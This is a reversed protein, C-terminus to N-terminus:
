NVETTFTILRPSEAAAEVAIEVQYGNYLVMNSQHTKSATVLQLYKQMNPVSHKV